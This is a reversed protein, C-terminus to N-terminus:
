DSPDLVVASRNGLADTTAVIRDKGDLLDRISITGTGAGSLKNATAALMIRLVDQVDLNGEVSESLLAQQVTLAQASQEQNILITRGPRALWLPITVDEPVLNGLVSLEHDLDYGRFRWGLGNNVFIYPGIQDTPNKFDGFTRMPFRLGQLSPTNFWDEKLDSYIDIQADISSLGGVPVKTVDFIRLDPDISIYTSV